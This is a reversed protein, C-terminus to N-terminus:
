RFREKDLLGPFYGLIAIELNWLGIAFLVVTMVISFAM